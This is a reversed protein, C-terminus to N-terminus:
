YITLLLVNHSDGATFRARADQRDRQSLHDRVPPPGSRTMAVGTAGTAAMNLMEVTRFGPCGRHRSFDRRSTTGFQFPHRRGM